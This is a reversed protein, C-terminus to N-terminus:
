KDYYRRNFENFIELLPLDLIELCPYYIELPVEYYASAISGSIAAQTDADGGLSVANRITDEYSNAELFCIISEPVSKQCSVEFPYGPRIEDLTRSLDYGFVDEVYEKIYYKSKGKRALYICSATTVAGKIGERANHTVQASRKAIIQTEELTDAIWGAPSVRM